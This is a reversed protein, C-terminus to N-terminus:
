VALRAAMRVSVEADVDMFLHSANWAMNSAARLIQDQIGASHPFSSSLPHMIAWQVALAELLPQWPMSTGLVRLVSTGLYM